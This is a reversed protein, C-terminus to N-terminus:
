PLVHLKKDLSIIILRAISHPRIKSLIFSHTSKSGGIVIRSGWGPSFVKAVANVVGQLWLPVWSTAQLAPNQRTPHFFLIFLLTFGAV